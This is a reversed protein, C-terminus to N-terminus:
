SQNSITKLELLTTNDCCFDKYDANEKHLNGTIVLEEHSHDMDPLLPEDKPKIGVFHHWAHLSEHIFTTIRSSLYLARERKENLCIHFHEPKCFDLAIFCGETNFENHFRSEGEVIKMDPKGDKLLRRMITIGTALQSAEQIVKKTTDIFAESGNINSGWKDMFKQYVEESQSPTPKNEEIWKNM